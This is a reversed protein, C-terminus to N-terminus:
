SRVWHAPRRPHASSATAGPGLARACDLSNEKGDMRGKTKADAHRGYSLRDTKAVRARGLHRSVRSQEAPSACPMSTARGGDYAKPLSPEIDFFLPQFPVIMPSRSADAM